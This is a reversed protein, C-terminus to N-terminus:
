VQMIKQRSMSWGGWDAGCEPCSAADAIVKAGCGGCWLLWGRRGEPMDPVVFGAADMIAHTMKMIEVADRGSNLPPTDNRVCDMFHRMQAAVTDVPELEEVVKGGRLVRGAGSSTNDIFVSYGGGYATFRESRGGSGHSATMQGLAGSEFRISAVVNGEQTEDSMEGHARIEAARGCMFHLPNVVHIRVLSLYAPNPRAYDAMVVDPGTEGFIEKARLLGFTRNWAVMMHKGARDAADAMAQTDAVTYAPPKEVLVHRGAELATIAQDKHALDPTLVLVADLEVSDLMQSLLPFAADVGFERAAVALRSEDLDALATVAVDDLAAAARALQIGRHGVGAIGVRITM